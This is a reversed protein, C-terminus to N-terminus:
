SWQPDQSLLCPKLNMGDRLLPGLKPRPLNAEAKESQKRALSSTYRLCRRRKYQVRRAAGALRWRRVM